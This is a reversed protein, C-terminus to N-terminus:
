KIRVVPLDGDENKMLVRIADYKKHLEELAHNVSVDPAVVVPLFAKRIKVINPGFQRNVLAIVSHSKMIQMVGRAKEPDGHMREEPLTNKVSEIYKYGADTIEYIKYLPADGFHGRYFEGTEDVAIAFKM